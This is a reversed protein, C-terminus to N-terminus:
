RRDLLFSGNHVNTVVSFFIDHHKLKGFLFNVMGFLCAGYNHMEGFLIFRDKQFDKIGRFKQSSGKLRGHAGSFFTELSDSLENVLKVAEPLRGTRLTNRFIRQFGAKLSIVRRCGSPQTGTNHQTIQANQKM